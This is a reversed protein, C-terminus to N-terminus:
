GRQPLRAAVAGEPPRRQERGDAFFKSEMQPKYKPQDKMDWFWVWVEPDRTTLRQCGSLLVAVTLGALASVVPRALRASVPNARM